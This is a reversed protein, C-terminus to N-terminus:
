FPYNRVPTIALLVHRQGVKKGKNMAAVHEQAAAMLASARAGDGSLNAIEERVVDKYQIRLKVKM